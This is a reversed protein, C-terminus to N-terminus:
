NGETSVEESGKAEESDKAKAEPITPLQIPM